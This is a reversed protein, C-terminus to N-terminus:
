GGQGQVSRLPEPLAVRTPGGKKFRFDCRDAGEALTQNRILGWNLLESYVADAACLYPGLEPTGQRQLFTCAACEVYDVGYDFTEGDGEVFTYVYNGPYRREQLKAAGQRLRRIHRRSFTASGFLRRLFRPYAKLYAWDMEYILRGVAELTEGQARLVRYIALSWATGIIFQTYPQKGGVYPLQPLLSEYERRVAGILADTQEEGYPSVLVGRVRSVMRDFDRLLRRKRSVYYTGGTRDAM